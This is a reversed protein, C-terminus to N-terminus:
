PLHVVASLELNESLFDILLQLKKRDSKIKKLSLLPKKM